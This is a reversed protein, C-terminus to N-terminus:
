VVQKIDLLYFVLYLLELYTFCTLKTLRLCYIHKLYIIVISINDLIALM